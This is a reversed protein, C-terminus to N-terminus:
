IAVSVTLSTFVNDPPSDKMAAKDMASPSESITWFVAPAIWGEYRHRHREHIQTQEPIGM